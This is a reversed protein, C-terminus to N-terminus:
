VPMASGSRKGKPPAVAITLASPTPRRISAGMPSLDGLDFSRPWFCFLVAVACLAAAAFDFCSLWPWVLGVGAFTPLYARTSFSGAIAATVLLVAFGRLMGRGRPFVNCRPGRFLPCIDECSMSCGASLFSTSAPAISTSASSEANVPPSPPPVCPRPRAGPWVAPRPPRRLPSRQALRSPLRCRHRLLLSLSGAQASRELVLRALLLFALGTVLADPAAPLPLLPRPISIPASADNQFRHEVQLASSGNTLVYQAHLTDVQLRGRTARTKQETDQQSACTGM